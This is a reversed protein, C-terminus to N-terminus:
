FGKKPPRAETPPTWRVGTVIRSIEDRGVGYEAALDRQLVGGRGYRSRIRSVQSWTLKARPHIAGAPRFHRGRHNMDRMNDQHTGLYLHAPNVCARVDCRHLVHMGAPITGVFVSYSVRHAKRVRCDVSM